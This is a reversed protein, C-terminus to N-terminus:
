NLASANVEARFREKEKHVYEDIDEQDFILERGKRRCNIRGLYAERSLHDRSMKLQEAAESRTLSRKVVQSEM